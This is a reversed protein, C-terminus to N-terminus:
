DAASDIDSALPSANLQQRATSIVNEMEDAIAEYAVISNQVNWLDDPKLYLGRTRAPAFEASDQDSDPHQPDETGEPHILLYQQTRLGTWTDAMLNLLRDTPFQCPQLLQTLSIPKSNLDSLAVANQGATTLPSQEDQSYGTLYHSITPLLDFSGALRQLRCAHGSGDNIWLPVHVLSEDGMTNFPEHIEAPLGRLASVILIPRTGTTSEYNALKKLFCDLVSSSWHIRQDSTEAEIEMDLWVLSSDLALESLAADFAVTSITDDIATVRTERSSATAANQALSSNEFLLSRTAPLSIATPERACILRRYQTSCGTAMLQEEFQQVRASGGLMETVSASARIDQILYQEFFISTLDLDDFPTFNLSVPVPLQDIRENVTNTGGPM